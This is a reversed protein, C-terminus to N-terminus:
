ILCTHLDTFRQRTACVKLKAMYIFNANVHIVMCFRVKCIPSCSHTYLMHAGRSHDHLPSRVVERASSRSPVFHLSPTVKACLLWPLCVPMSHQSKMLVVSRGALTFGYVLDTTVTYFSVLSDSSSDGVTCCEGTGFSRVHNSSSRQTVELIGM